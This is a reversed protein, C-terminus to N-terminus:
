VSEVAALVLARLRREVAPLAVKLEDSDAAIALEAFGQEALLSGLNAGLQASAFDIIADMGLPELQIVDQSADPRVRHWHPGNEFCDFKLVEQWSEAQLGYVELTPGRDRDSTRFRFRFQFPGGQITEWGENRKTDAAYDNM